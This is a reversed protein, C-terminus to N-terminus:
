NTVYPKSVRLNIACCAHSPLISSGADCVTPATRTISAGSELMGAAYVTNQVNRNFETLGQAHRDRAWGQLGFFRVISRLALNEQVDALLSAETARRNANGRSTRRVLSRPVLLALLLAVVAALALRRDLVFM